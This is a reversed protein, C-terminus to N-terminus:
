KCPSTLATSVLSSSSLVGYKAWLSVSKELPVRLTCAGLMGCVVSVVKKSDLRAGKWVDGLCPGYVDFFCRLFFSPVKMKINGSM